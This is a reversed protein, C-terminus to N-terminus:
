SDALNFGIADFPTRSNQVNDFLTDILLWETGHLKFAELLNTDSNVLWLFSVSECAYVTRKGGLELTRTSPLRPWSSTSLATLM